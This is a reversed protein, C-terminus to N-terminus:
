KRYTTLMGTWGLGASFAQRVNNPETFLMAVFTGLVIFSILELVDRAKGEIGILNWLKGFGYVTLRQRDGLKTWLVLAGIATCLVHIPTDMSPAFVM